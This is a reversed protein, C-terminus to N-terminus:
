RVDGFESRVGRPTLASIYHHPGHDEFSYRFPVARTLDLRSALYALPAVFTLGALNKMQGSRAEGKREEWESKRTLPSKTWWSALAQAPIAKRTLELADSPLTVLNAPLEKPSSVAGRIWEAAGGPFSLVEDLADSMLSLTGDITGLKKDFHFERGFAAYQGVPRPPLHPVVDRNHIYRILNDRLFNRGKSDRKEECARAFRQDGVMPQGFTYIAKLKEAISRYTPECILTVGMLAAMAGGLSHGTIYLSELPNTKESEDEPHISYGETARQLAEMVLYRTARMNRYFGGHVEYKNSDLDVTIREATADADTLIGIIDDPQTGRYCLIVVRRDESQILYAGSAVSMAAVRQDFVRCRNEELGLRAMIMSVTQPDGKQEFGAYSYAACTAMVHQVVGGPDPHVHAETLYKTLDPYVPFGGPGPQFLTKYPRLDRESPATAYDEYM